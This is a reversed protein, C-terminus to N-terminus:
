PNVTIVFTKIKVKQNSAGNNSAVFVVKYDGPKTFRYRYQTIPSNTVNKIPVAKDPLALNPYFANSIAWDESYSATLTSTFKLQTSSTAWSNLTNAAKVIKWVTSVTGGPVLNYNV